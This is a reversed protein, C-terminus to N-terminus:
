EERLKNNRPSENIARKLISWEIESEKGMM